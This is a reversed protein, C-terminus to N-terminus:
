KEYSKRDPLNFASSKTEGLHNILDTHEDFGLKYYHSESNMVFYM